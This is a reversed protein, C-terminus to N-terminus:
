KKYIHIKSLNVHLSSYSYQVSYEDEIISEKSSYMFITQLIIYIYLIIDALIDTNFKM